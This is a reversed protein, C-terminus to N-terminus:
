AAFSILQGAADESLPGFRGSLLPALTKACDLVYETCLPAQLFLEPEIILSAARTDTNCIKESLATDGLLSVAEARMALCMTNGLLGDIVAYTETELVKRLEQARSAFALERAARRQPSEAILALMAPHVSSSSASSPSGSPSTPQPVTQAPPVAKMKSAPPQSSGGFGKAIPKKNGDQANKAMM